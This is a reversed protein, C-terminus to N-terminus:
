RTRVENVMQEAEYKEVLDNMMEEQTSKLMYWGMAVDPNLPKANNSFPVVVPGEKFGIQELLPILESVFPSVYYRGNETTFAICGHNCAYHKGKTDMDIKAIFNHNNADVFEVNTVDVCLKEINENIM